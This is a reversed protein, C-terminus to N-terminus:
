KRQRIRVGGKLKGEVEYLGARTHKSYDQYICSNKSIYLITKIEMIIMGLM